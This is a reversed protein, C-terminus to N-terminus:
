RRRISLTATCQAWRGRLRPPQWARMRRWRCCSKSSCGPPATRLADPPPLQAPPWRMLRGSSSCRPNPSGRPHHPFSCVWAPGARQGLVLARSYAADLALHLVIVPVAAAKCLTAAAYCAVAALALVASWRASRFTRSKVHFLLAAAVFAAALAYPQCSCRGARGGRGSSAQAHPNAPDPHLRCLHHPNAPDPHLRCLDPAQQSPLLM